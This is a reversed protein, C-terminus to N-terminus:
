YNMQWGDAIIRSSCSAGAKHDENCYAWAFAPNWTGATLFKKPHVQFWFIDRGVFNPPKLGNVDIYVDGTCPSNCDKHFGTFLYSIGDVTIFRYVNSSGFVVTLTGGTGDYNLNTNREFCKSSDGSRCIKVTNFYKVVKDGMTNMDSSDFFSTLDQPTDSQLAMQAFAQNATTYAKKLATLYQLRQYNKMVSPITIAAVVGIVGLTILVEALTFAKKNKKNKIPM